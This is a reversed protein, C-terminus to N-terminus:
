TFAVSPPVELVPGDALLPHLEFRVKNVLIFFARRLHLFLLLVLPIHFLYRMCHLLYRHTIMLMSCLVIHLSPWVLMLFLSRTLSCAQLVQFPVGWSVFVPPISHVVFPM